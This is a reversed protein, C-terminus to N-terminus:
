RISGWSGGSRCTNMPCMLKKELRQTSKATRFVAAKLLGGCSAVRANLGAQDESSTSSSDATRPLNAIEAKRAEQDLAQMRNVWAAFADNEGVEDRFSALFRNVRLYPYGEVRFAGPDLVGAKSTHKDLSSFFDACSGLADAEGLRFSETPKPVIACGATLLAFVAAVLLAQLKLWRFKAM